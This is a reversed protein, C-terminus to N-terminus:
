VNNRLSNLIEQLIVAAAVKDVLEKTKKFNNGMKDMLIDEADFSTLFENSFFIPLNTIENMKEVFSNIYSCAEIKEGCSNLPLGVVIAGVDNEKLFPKLTEIDKLNSKRHIIFKATAINWDRDSLAVGITKRGVDLGAIRKSKPLNNKFDILNLYLM